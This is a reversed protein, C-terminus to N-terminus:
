HCWVQVKQGNMLSALKTTLCEDVRSTCKKCHLSVAFYKVILRKEGFTFIQECRIEIIIYRHKKLSVLTSSKARENFKSIQTNPM